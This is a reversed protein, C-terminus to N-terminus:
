RLPPNGDTDADAVVSSQKIAPADGDMLFATAKTIAITCTAGSAVIKVKVYRKKSICGVHVLADAGVPFADPYYLCVADDCDTFTSNDDSEQFKISDIAGATWDIDVPLILSRYGLTDISDGLTTGAAAISTADLAPVPKANSFQDINM